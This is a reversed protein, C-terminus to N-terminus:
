TDIQRNRLYEAIASQPIRTREGCRYLPRFGDPSGQRGLAVLEKVTTRSLALLEVVENICYLQEVKVLASRSGRM